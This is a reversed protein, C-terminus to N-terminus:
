VAPACSQWCCVGAHWPPRVSRLALLMLAVIVVAMPEVATRWRSELSSGAAMVPKAGRPAVLRSDIPLLTWPPLAATVPRKALAEAGAPFSVALLPPLLPGMGPLPPETGSAPWRLEPRGLEKWRKRASAANLAVAGASGKGSDALLAAAAAAAGASQAFLLTQFPGVRGSTAAAAPALSLSKSAPPAAASVSLSMARPLQLSRVEVFVCAVSACACREPM